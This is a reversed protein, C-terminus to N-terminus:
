MDNMREILSEINISLAPITITAKSYCSYREKLKKTIFELLEEESKNNVLPRKQKSKLLRSYIADANMELYVSVGFNNIQDMAGQYCPLGGGTAIVCNETEFTSILIEHELKRFLEEGYKNFFTNINLKYKEEFIMDTDIFQRGLKLALKKGVTSKGVGM